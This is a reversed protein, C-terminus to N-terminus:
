RRAPRIGVVEVLRETPRVVFYARLGGFQIFRLGEATLEIFLRGKGGGDGSHWAKDFGLM